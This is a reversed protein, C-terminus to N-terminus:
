IGEVCEACKMQILSTMDAEENVGLWYYGARGMVLVEMQSLTEKLLLVISYSVSM